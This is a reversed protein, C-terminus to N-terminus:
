FWDKVNQFLSKGVDKQATTKRASQVGPSVANGIEPMAALVSLQESTAWNAPRGSGSTSQALQLRDFEQMALGAWEAQQHREAPDESRLAIQEHAMAMHKWTAATQRSRLSRSFLDLARYWRGNNALLVGLENASLYKDQNASVAVQHMV